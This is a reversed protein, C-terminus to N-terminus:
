QSRQSRLWISLIATVLAGCIVAPIVVIFTEILGYTEIEMISLLFASRLSGTPVESKEKLTLAIACAIYSGHLALVTAMSGLLGGLLIAGLRNGSHVASNVPPKLLIAYFLGGLFILVTDGVAALVFTSPETPDARFMIWRACALHVVAGISLLIVTIKTTSENRSAM